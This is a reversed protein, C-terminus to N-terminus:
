TMAQSHQHTPFTRAINPRGLNVAQVFVAATVLESEVKIFWGFCEFPIM